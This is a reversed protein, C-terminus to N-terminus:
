TMYIDRQNNKAYAIVEIIICDSHQNMPYHLLGRGRLVRVYEVDRLICLDRYVDM